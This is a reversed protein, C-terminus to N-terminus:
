SDDPGPVTVPDPPPCHLGEAALQGCAAQIDRGRSKRIMATFHAATLIDKFALVATEDPTRFPLGPSENYPILNIKCRVHSLIKVLIRAATPSDNIGRILIYEFTIREGRALPFERCAALLDALPTRRNVPMLEDRVQDTAANLSIALKPRVPERGLRRIGEILGCTSLTIKRRSLAIGQPDILLHFAKMVAEYNLLPEGMGMLVINLSAGVLDQERAIILYQGLIEDVGLNRKFGLGATACFRCAMPCGVQTSICLTIRDGDPIYVSEIRDNGAVEFLFKSSGDASDRRSVIRPLELRFREALTSRFAASIDTMDELRASQRAYIQHYLQNGRFAKEGMETAWLRLEELTHGILNDKEM